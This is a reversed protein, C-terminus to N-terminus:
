ARFAATASAGHNCGTAAAMVPAGQQPAVAVQQPVVWFGPPGLPSSLAAVDEAEQSVVAFGPAGQPSSPVVMTASACAGQKAAAVAAGRHSQPATM